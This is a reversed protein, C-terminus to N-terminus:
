AAEVKPRSLESEGEKVYISNRPKALVRRVMPEFFSLPLTDYDTMFAAADYKACFEATREFLARHAFGAILGGVIPFVLFVWLQALADTGGYIATALSRAPNVSTNDIPISILHILTLALPSECERPQHEGLRVRVRDKAVAEICAGYEGGRGDFLILGDGAQLRMGLLRGLEVMAEATEVEREVIASPSDGSVM